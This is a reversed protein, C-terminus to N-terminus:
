RIPGGSQTGNRAVKRAVGDLPVFDLGDAGVDMALAYTKLTIARTPTGWCM